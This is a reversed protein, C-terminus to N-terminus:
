EGGVHRQGEDTPNRPASGMWEAGDYVVPFYVRAETWILVPEGESGGYGGDFERDLDIGEPAVAVVPTDDLGREDEFLKRWTTMERKMRGDYRM